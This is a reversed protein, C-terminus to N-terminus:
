KRLEFKIKSSFFRGYLNKDNVEIKSLCKEIHKQTEEDCDAKYISIKGKTDVKFVIPVDCNVSTEKKSEPFTIAKEMSKVLLTATTREPTLASANITTFLTMAFIVSLISLTKM